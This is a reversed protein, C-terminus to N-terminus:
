LEAKRIALAGNDYKATTFCPVRQFHVLGGACHRRCACNTASGNTAILADYFPLLVMHWNVKPMSVAVNESGYAAVTSTLVTQHRCSGMCIDVFM